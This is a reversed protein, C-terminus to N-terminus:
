SFKADLMAATEDDPTQTSAASTGGARQIHQSAQGKLEGAFKKERIAEYEDALVLRAAVDFLKERTPAQMGQAVYGSHLVAIQNAIAERKAYQSSGQSLSAYEGAGLAEVFDEGLGTVQGNFWREMEETARAQTALSTDDQRGRLEQITEQQQKLIEAYREFAGTVEAGYVEPDLKPFDAFPDKPKEETVVPKSAEVMEDQQREMADTIGILSEENPFQRATALPIGANVARTLAEDSIIVPAIEVVAKAAAEAAASEEAASVDAAVEGAAVEADATADNKAVEAAAKAEDSEGSVDAEVVAEQAATEEADAKVEADAEEFGKEIEAVLEESPM